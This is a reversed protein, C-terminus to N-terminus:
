KHFVFMSEAGDFDHNYDSDDAEEGGDCNGVRHLGSFETLLELACLVELPKLFRFRCEDDFLLAGRASCVGFVGLTDPLAGEVCVVKLYTRRSRDVQGMWGLM